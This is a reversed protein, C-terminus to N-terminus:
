AAKACDPMLQAGIGVGDGTRAAAAKEADRVLYAYKATTEVKNYGLLRGIVTLARALRWRGPPTPTGYITLRTNRRDPNPTPKTENAAAM